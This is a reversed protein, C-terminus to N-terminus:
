IPGIKPWRQGRPSCKKVNKKTKNQKTARKSSDQGTEPWRPGIKACRRGEHIRFFLLVIVFNHLVYLYAGADEISKIYENPPYDRLHAASHARCEPCPMIRPLLYLQNNFAERDELISATSHLFIWLANGWQKKNIEM